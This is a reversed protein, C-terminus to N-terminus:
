KWLEISKNIADRIGEFYEEKKFHPIIEEDIIHKCIEDTLVKETGLGTSIRVKHHEKFVVILLWALAKLIKM